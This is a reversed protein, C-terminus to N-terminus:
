EGGQRGAREARQLSRWRQILERDALGFAAPGGGPPMATPTM